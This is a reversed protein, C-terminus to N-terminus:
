QEKSTPISTKHSADEQHFFKRSVAAPVLTTRETAEQQLAKKEKYGPITESISHRECATSLMLAGVTLLLIVSNYLATQSTKHVNGLISM